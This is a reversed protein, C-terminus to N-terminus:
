YFLRFLSVLIPQKQVRETVVKKDREKNFFSTFIRHLIIRVDFGWFPSNSM